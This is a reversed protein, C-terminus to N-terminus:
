KIIERRHVQKTGKGTSDRQIAKLEPVNGGRGTDM